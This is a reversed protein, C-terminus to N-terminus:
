VIYIHLNIHAEEYNFKLLKISNLKIFNDFLIWNSDIKTQFQTFNFQIQSLEVLNLEIPIENLVRSM